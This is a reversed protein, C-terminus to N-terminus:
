EDKFGLMADVQERAAAFKQLDDVTRLEKVNMPVHRNARIFEAVDPRVCGLNDYPVAGEAKVQTMCGCNDPSHARGGPYLIGFMGTWNNWESYIEPLRNELDKVQEDYKGM